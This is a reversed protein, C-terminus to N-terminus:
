FYICRASLVRGLATISPKPPFNPCSLCQLQRSCAGPSHGGQSLWVFCNCQQGCTVPHHLYFPVRLWTPVPPLAVQKRPHADRPVLGWTCAHMKFKRLISSFPGQGGCLGLSPKGREQQLAGREEQEEPEGRGPSNWQFWGLKCKISVDDRQQDTTSSSRPIRSIHTSSSFITSFYSGCQVHEYINM